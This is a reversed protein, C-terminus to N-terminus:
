LNSSKCILFHFTILNFTYYYISIILTCDVCLPSASKNINSLHSPFLGKHLFTDPEPSKYNYHYVNQIKLNVARLFIKGKGCLIDCICYHKNYM